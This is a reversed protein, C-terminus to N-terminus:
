KLRVGVVVRESILIMGTKHTPINLCLATSYREMTVCSSLLLALWGSCSAQGSCPLSFERYKVEERILDTEHGLKTKFSVRDGGYTSFWSCKGLYFTVCVFFTFWAFPNWEGCLTM